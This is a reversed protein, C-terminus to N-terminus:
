YLLWGKKINVNSQQPKVNVTQQQIKEQKISSNLNLFDEIKVIAQPKTVKVISVTKNQDPFQSPIHNNLNNNSDDDNHTNLNTNANNSTENLNDSTITIDSKSM